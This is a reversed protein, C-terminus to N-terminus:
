LRLLAARCRAQAAMFRFRPGVQFGFAWRCIGRLVGFRWCFGARWNQLARAYLPSGADASHAWTAPDGSAPSSLFPTGYKVYKKAKNENLLAPAGGTHVRLSSIRIFEDRM